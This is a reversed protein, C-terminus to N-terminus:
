WPKVFGRNCRLFHLQFEAGWLPYSVSAGVARCFRSKEQVSRSLPAVFVPSLRSGQHRLRSFRVSSFLFLSSSVAPIPSRTLATHFPSLFISARKGQTAQQTGNSERRTGPPIQIHNVALCQDHFKVTGTGNRRRTRRRDPSHVFFFYSM